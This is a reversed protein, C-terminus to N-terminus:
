QLLRALLQKKYSDLRHPNDRLINQAEVANAETMPCFSPICEIHLGSLVVLGEDVRRSVIGAPRGEIDEYSAEILVDSFQEAHEFYCGGNFMAWGYDQTHPFYLKAARVGVPSTYSFDNGYAPGVASGPFFGLEREGLFVSGDLEHFRLRQCSFYAGACIGLYNGGERVYRSIRETGLGRLNKHYPRDMGGPVVLLKTAKEWSPDQVLFTHNVRSVLFERPLASRLWRVVHKLYYPSVGDDSYILVRSRM